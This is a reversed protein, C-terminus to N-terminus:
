LRDLTLQDPVGRFYKQLAKEFINDKPAVQAFLTMCSQFKMDDPSGFIQAATRNEVMLVLETCERLRPGLVSHSLYARAEDLGFIAYEIATPSRGLGRIQPFIFWMWHSMKRGARLESTVQEFIADQAEVFRQLNYRDIKDSQQESSMAKKREYLLTNRM